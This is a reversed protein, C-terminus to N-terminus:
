VGTGPRSTVFSGFRDAVAFGRGPPCGVRGGGSGHSPGTDGVTRVFSSVVGGTVLYRRVVTGGGEGESMPASDSVAASQPWPEIRTDSWVSGVARRVSPGVERDVSVGCVLKGGDRTWMVRAVGRPLSLGSSQRLVM